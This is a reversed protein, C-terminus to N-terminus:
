QPWHYRSVISQPQLSMGKLAVGDNGAFGVTNGDLIVEVAGADRANLKLGRMNPVRYTDGPRLVRDIYQHNRIGMVAVFTARHVRLTVRSGRNQEGYREGLPLQARIGPKPEVTASDAPAPIADSPPEVAAERSLPASKEVGAVPPPVSIPPVVAPALPNRPSPKPVPVPRAEGAAPTVLAPESPRPAPQEPIAVPPPAITDPTLGAEEALRAPVPTVTPALPRPGSHIISYGFYMMVASMLAATVWTRMPHEAPSPLPLRLRPLPMVPARREPVSFQPTAREPASFLAFQPERRHGAESAAPPQDKRKPPSFFALCPEVLFKVIERFRLVAGTMQSQLAKQLSGALSNGGPRPCADGSPAKVDATEVSATGAQDSRLVADQAAFAWDADREAMEARLRAILTTANLGLCAAYSRVFGIAYARGPLEEFANNEIAILHHPVIKLARSIDALTKGRRERNTRLYEGISENHANVLDGTDPPMPQHAIIPEMKSGFVPERPQLDPM